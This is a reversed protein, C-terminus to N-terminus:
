QFVCCLGSSKGSLRTLSAFLPRGEVPIGDLMTNRLSLARKTQSIDKGWPQQGLTLSMHIGGSASSVLRRWARGQRSLAHRTNPM